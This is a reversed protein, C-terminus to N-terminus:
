TWRTTALDREMLRNQVITYSDEEALKAVTTYSGGDYVWTVLNNYPEKRDYSTRGLNDTLVQPKENPSYSWEHLLVNGDWAYRHYTDHTEKLIRRGLADYEFRITAGEPTRVSRLMGNGYWEYATDGEQWGYHAQM